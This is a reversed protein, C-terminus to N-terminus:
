SGDIALSGIQIVELAEFLDIDSVIDVFECHYYLWRM